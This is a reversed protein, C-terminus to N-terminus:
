LIIPLSWLFPERLWLKWDVQMNTYESKTKNRIMKQSCFKGRKIKASSFFDAWVSGLLKAHGGLRNQRSWGLGIGSLWVWFRLRLNHRRSFLLIVKYKYIYSSGNFRELGVGVMQVAYLMGCEVSLCWSSSFSYMYWQIKNNASTSCLGSKKHGILSTMTLLQQLRSEDSIAMASLFLLRTTHSQAWPSVFRALQM